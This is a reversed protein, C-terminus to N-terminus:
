YQELAKWHFHPFRRGWLLAFQVIKSAIRVIPHIASLVLKERNQSLLDVILLRIEFFLVRYGKTLLFTIKVIFSHMVFKKYSWHIYYLKLWELNSDIIICGLMTIIRALQIFQQVEIQHDVFNLIHLTNRM